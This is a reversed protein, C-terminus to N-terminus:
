AMTTDTEFYDETDIDDPSSGASKKRLPRAPIGVVTDGPAVDNLVVANAGITAHDGITIAGLLKAGAGVNVGKGLQPAERPRDNYRNGLTVGQRIVCDDGIVASGHIVIAGQHE